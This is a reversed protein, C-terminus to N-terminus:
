IAPELLKNDRLLAKDERTMQMTPMLFTGAKEAMGIGEDDILYCHELSRAGARLAQKCGEAARTHVALLLGLQKATQGIAQMEDEFWTVKASEDGASM